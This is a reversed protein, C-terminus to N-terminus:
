SFRRRLMQKAARVIREAERPTDLGLADAISANLKDLGARGQGAEGTSWLELAPRYLLRRRGHAVTGGVRAPDLGLTRAIEEDDRGEDALAVARRLRSSISRDLYELMAQAEIKASADDVVAGKRTTLAVISRWYRHPDAPAEEEPPVDRHRHRSFGPQSRRHDEALNAIVRRLWHRFYTGLGDSSLESGGQLARARAGFRRLKRHDDAQLGEWALTWVDWTAEESRREAGRRSGAWRLVAPSIASWLREFAVADGESVALALQAARSWDIAEKAPSAAGTAARM